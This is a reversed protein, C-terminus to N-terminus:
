AKRLAGLVAAWAGSTGDEATIQFTGTLDTQPSTLSQYFTALGRAGAISFTDLPLWGNTGAVTRANTPATGAAWGVAMFAFDNPSTTDMAGFSKTLTSNTGGNGSLSGSSDNPTSVAVGLVKTLALYNSARSASGVLTVITGAPSPATVRAFGHRVQVTGGRFDGPGLETFAGIAGDDVALSLITTFVSDNNAAAWAFHLVDGVALADTTACTVTASSASTNHGIATPALSIAAPRSLVIIGPISPLPDGENVVRIRTYDPPYAQPVIRGDAGVSAFETSMDTPTWLNTGGNYRWVDNNNPASDQMDAFQNVSGSIDAKDALSAAVSVSLANLSATFSASLTTLQAAVYDAVRKVAPVRGLDTGTTMETASALEVVGAATESASSVSPISSMATAIQANVFDVVRKVAPVRILDTGTTMESPSALEVNGAQSESAARVGAAVGAEIRELDTDLIPTTHDPDNKWDKPTFDYLSM